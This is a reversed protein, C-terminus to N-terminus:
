PARSGLSPLPPSPFPFSPSAPLPLLSIPFFPLSSSPIAPGGVKGQRGGGITAALDAATAWQQPSLNKVSTVGALVLTAADWQEVLRDLMVVQCGCLLSYNYTNRQLLKLATHLFTPGRWKCPGYEWSFVVWINRYKSPPKYRQNKTM